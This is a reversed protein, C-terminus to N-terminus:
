MFGEAAGPGVRGYVRRRRVEDHPVRASPVFDERAKVQVVKVFVRETCGGLSRQGGCVSGQAGGAGGGAEM